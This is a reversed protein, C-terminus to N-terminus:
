ESDELAYNDLYDMFMQLEDQVRSVLIPGPNPEFDSIFTAVVDTDGTLSRVIRKILSFALSRARDNLNFEAM